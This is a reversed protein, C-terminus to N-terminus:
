NLKTGFLNEYYIEEEKLKSHLASIAVQINTFRECVKNDNDYLVYEEEGESGSSTIIIERKLTAM